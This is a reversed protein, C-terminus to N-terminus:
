MHQQECTHYLGGECTRSYEECTRGRRRERVRAAEREKASFHSLFVLFGLGSKGFHLIEKSFNAVGIEKALTSV